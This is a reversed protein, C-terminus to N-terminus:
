GGVPVIEIYNAVDASDHEAVFVRKNVADYATGRPELTGSATVLTNFTGTTTNVQYVAGTPSGSFITGTPGVSLLDPMLNTALAKYSSPNSVPAAFIESETQDSVFLTTGAVAVGVPKQLGTTIVDTETGSTIDLTAVFGTTGGSVKNFYSDYITGDPALAIGLRRKTPDLGPVTGTSGDPHVLAVLGSTGFGFEVVVLTGDTLQIIGGLDNGTPGPLDVLVKFGDADTWTMVRDNENDAIYLTSTKANWWLGNPDADTIALSKPGREVPAGPETGPASDKSATGTDTAGSDHTGGDPETAPSSSSCAALAVALLPFLRRSATFAETLPAILLM